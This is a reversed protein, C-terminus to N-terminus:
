RLTSCYAKLAATRRYCRSRPGEMFFSIIITLVSFMILSLAFGNTLEELLVQVRVSM